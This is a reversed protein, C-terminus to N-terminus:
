LGNAARSITNVVGGLSQEVVKDQLLMTYRRISYERHCPLCVLGSDNDAVMFNNDFSAGCMSCAQPTTKTENFHKYCHKCLGDHKIGFSTKTGCAVCDISCALCTYNFACMCTNNNQPAAKPLNCQHNSTRSYNKKCKKCTKINNSTEQPLAKPKNCDDCICSGELGYFRNSSSCEEHIAEQNAQAIVNSILVEVDDALQYSKKITIPTTTIKHVEKKIRKHDVVLANITSVVGAFMAISILVQFLLLM